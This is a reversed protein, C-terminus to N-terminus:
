AVARSARGPHWLASCLAAVSVQKVKTFLGQGMELGGSAVLVSGDPYVHVSAAM